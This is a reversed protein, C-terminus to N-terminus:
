DRTHNSIMIRLSVRVHQGFRDVQAADPAFRQHSLYCRARGTQKWTSWAALMETFGVVGPLHACPISLPNM